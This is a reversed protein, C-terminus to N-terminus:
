GLMVEFEKKTIPQTEVLGQPNPDQVAATDKPKSGERVGLQTVSAQIDGIRHEVGM